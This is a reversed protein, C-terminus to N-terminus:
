SSLVVKFQLRLTKQDYEYEPTEGTSTSRSSTVTERVLDLNLDLVLVLVLVLVFATFSPKWLAVASLHRNFISKFQRAKSEM